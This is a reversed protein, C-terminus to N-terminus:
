LLLLWGRLISESHETWQKADHPHVGLDIQDIFLCFYISFVQKREKERQTPSTKEHRSEKQFKM